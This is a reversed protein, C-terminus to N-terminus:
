LTLNLSLKIPTSRVRMRAGAKPTSTPKALIFSSIKFHLRNCNNKNHFRKLDIGGGLINM